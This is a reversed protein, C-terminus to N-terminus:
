KFISILQEQLRRLTYRMGHEKYCRIGGRIKRPIFTIFRGIRYSASNRIAIVEERYFASEFNGKLKIEEHKTVKHLPPTPGTFATEKMKLFLFDVFSNAEYVEKLLTYDERNYFYNTDSFDIELEQVVNERLENFLAEFGEVTKFTKLNYALSSVFANIFSQKLLDFKGIRELTVKFVRIIESFGQFVPM